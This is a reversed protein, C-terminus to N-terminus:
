TTLTCDISIGSNLKGIQTIKSIRLSAVHLWARIPVTTKGDVTGDLVDEIYQSWGCDPRRNVTDDVGDRDM